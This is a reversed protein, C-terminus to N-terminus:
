QVSLGRSGLAASVKRARSAIIHSNTSAEVAKWTQLFTYEHRRSNKHVSCSCVRRLAQIQWSFLTLEGLGHLLILLNEDTGDESAHYVYKPLIQTKPAPKIRPSPDEPAPQVNLLSEM